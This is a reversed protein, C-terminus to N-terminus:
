RATWGGDVTITTGTVQGAAPSALFVVADGIQDVTIFSESPQKERLLIAKAADMDGNCQENAIVRVQEELLPTYVYGPCVSNCTVGTTANELAVVKTLGILGHKSACYASKHASGVLGQVSSINIIRGWRRRQMSSLCAQTTHFAATLNVAIIDDWKDPPYTTIPSVYQIGANNVLIDVAGLEEEAYKVMADVAARCRVDADFYRSRVGYGAFSELLKSVKSPPNRGNLLVDAGAVALGKAIGLGIGGTSGTVLAVRGSLVKAAQSMQEVLLFFNNYDGRREHYNSREWFSSSVTHVLAFLYIFPLLIRTDSLQLLTFCWYVPHTVDFLLLLGNQVVALAM